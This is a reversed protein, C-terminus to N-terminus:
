QCVFPVKVNGTNTYAQYDARLYWNRDYLSLVWPTTISIENGYGQSQLAGPLRIHDVLNSNFWQASIGVDSADLAFRWDGEVSVSEAAACCVNLMAAFACALVPSTLRANLIRAETRM